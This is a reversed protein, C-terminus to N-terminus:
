KCAPAEYVGKTVKDKGLVQYGGAGPGRYLRDSDVLKNTKRGM